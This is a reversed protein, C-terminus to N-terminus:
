KAQALCAMQLAGERTAIAAYKLLVYQAACSQHINLQNLQGGSFTYNGQELARIVPEPNSAFSRICATAKAVERDANDAAQLSQAAASAASLGMAKARGLAQTLDEALIAARASRLEAVRYEPLRPALHAFSTKCGGATKPAGASAAVPLPAPQPTLPQAPTPRNSDHQALQSELFQRQMRLTSADKGLADLLQESSQVIDLNREIRDREEQWARESAAAEWERQAQEAQRKQAEVQAQIAPRRQERIPAFQAAIRQFASAREPTAGTEKLLAAGRAECLGGDAFAAMNSICTELVQLAAGTDGALQFNNAADRFALATNRIWKLDGGNRLKGLEQHAFKEYERGAVPFDKREVAKRALEFHSPPAPPSSACAAVALTAVVALARAWRKTTECRTM